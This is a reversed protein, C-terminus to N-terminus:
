SLSRLVIDGVEDSIVHGESVDTLITSTETIFPYVREVTWGFSEDVFRFTYRVDKEDAIFDANFVGEFNDLIFFDITVSNVDFNSEKDVIEFWGGISQGFQVPLTFTPAGDTTDIYNVTGIELETGDDSFSFDRRNNKDQVRSKVVVKHEFVMMPRIFAIKIIYPDSASPTITFVSDITAVKTTGNYDTIDRFEGNDDYLRMGNYDDDTPAAGTDLTIATGSAAQINNERVTRFQPADTISTDVPVDLFVPDGNSDSFSFTMISRSSIREIVPVKASTLNWTNEDAFDSVSVPDGLGQNFEDITVNEVLPYRSNLTDNGEIFFRMKTDAPVSDLFIGAKEFWIDGGSAGPGFPTCLTSVNISGTKVPKVVDVFFQATEDKIRYKILDTNFDGFGTAIVGGYILATENEGGIQVQEETDVTIIVQEQNRIEVTDILAMNSGTAPEESFASELTFRGIVVGDSDESPVYGIINRIQGCFNFMWGVYFDVVDSLETETAQAFSRNLTITYVAGSKVTFDVLLNSEFPIDNFETTVNRRFIINENWTEGKKREVM